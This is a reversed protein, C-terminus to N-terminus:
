YEVGNETDNIEIDNCYKKFNQFATEMQKFDLQVIAQYNISLNQMNPINIKYLHKDRYVIKKYKLFNLIKRKFLNNGVTINDIREADKALTDKRHTRFEIFITRIAYTFKMIDITSDDEFNYKYPILRHYNNINPIDVYLKDSNVIEIKPITGLISEKSVILCGDPNYSEITIKGTEWEIQKCIITSNSIRCIEDKKGIKLKRFDDCLRIKDSNGAVSNINAGQGM